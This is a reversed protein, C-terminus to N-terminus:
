DTDSVEYLSLCVKLVPYEKGGDVKGDCFDCIRALRPFTPLNPVMAIRSGGELGCDRPTQAESIQRRTGNEIECSFSMTGIKQYSPVVEIQIGGFTEKGTIQGEVTYGGGM